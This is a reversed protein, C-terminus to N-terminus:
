AALVSDPLSNALVAGRAEDTGPVSALVRGAAHETPIRAFDAPLKDTCFELADKAGHTRYWRGSVLLYYLGDKSDLFLDSETNDVYTLNTGEIPRFTPAGFTTVLETPEFAVFVKPMVARAM